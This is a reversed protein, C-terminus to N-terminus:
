RKPTSAKGSMERLPGTYWKNSPRYRHQTPHGVRLNTGKAALRQIAYPGGKCTFLHAYFSWIPANKHPNPRLKLYIRPGPTWNFTVLKGAAAMSELQEDIHILDGEEADDLELATHAAKMEGGWAVFRRHTLASDLTRLIYAMQDVDSPNLYDSPKASYKSIEAAAHHIDGYVKRVDVQTIKPNRTADQWLALWKKRPIYYRSTFYSKNVALIAHIHPHWTDHKENYTLETSRQWGRVIKRIDARQMIRQWATHLMTIEHSLDISDVNPVTVTLLIYAPANHHKAEAQQQLYDVIQRTQSYVKLSRRWQCVPCLRVRCFNAHALTLHGADTQQYYLSDACAMVRAAKKDLGMLDYAMSLLQAQSKHLQWPREKGHSDPDHLIDEQRYEIAMNNYM